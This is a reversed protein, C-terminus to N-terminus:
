SKTVSCAPDKRKHAAQFLMIANTISHVLFSRNSSVAYVAKPLVNSAGLEVARRWIDNAPFNSYILVPAVCALKPIASLAEDIPVNQAGFHLDMLVVDPDIEKAVLHGDQVSFASFLEIEVPPPLKLIAQLGSHSEKEDDILLAKIIM